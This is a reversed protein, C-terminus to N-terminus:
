RGSKKYQDVPTLEWFADKVVESLAPHIHMGSTIPYLTQEKTYMLTIIEQILVTAQPGIIQERLIKATEQEVIVKVFYDRVAM